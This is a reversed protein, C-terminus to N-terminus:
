LYFIFFNQTCLLFYRDFDLPMGFLVSSFPLGESFLNIFFRPFSRSFGPPLPDHYFRNSTWSPDVYFSNIGEVHSTCIRVPFAWISFIYLFIYLFIHVEFEKVLQSFKMNNNIQDHYLAMANDYGKIYTTYMQQLFFFNFSNM